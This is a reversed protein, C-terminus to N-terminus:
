YAYRFLISVMLSNLWSVLTCASLPTGRKSSREAFFEDLKLPDTFVQLDLRALDEALLALDALLEKHEDIPRHLDGVLAPPDRGQAVAVEHTLDGQKRVSQGGQHFEGQYTPLARRLLSPNRRTDPQHVTGSQVTKVTGPPAAHITDDADNEQRHRDQQEAQDGGRHRCSCWRRQWSAHRCDAVRDGPGIVHAAGVAIM